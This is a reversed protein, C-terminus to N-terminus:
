AKSHSDTWWGMWGDAQRYCQQTPLPEKSKRIQQMSNSSRASMFTCTKTKRSFKYEKNSCFPGLIAVYQPKKLIKFIMTMLTQLFHYSIRFMNKKVGHRPFTKNKLYWFNEQGVLHCFEKLSVKKNQNKPSLSMQPLFLSVIIKVMKTLRARKVLWPSTM